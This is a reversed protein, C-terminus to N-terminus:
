ELTGILGEYNFSLSVKISYIRTAELDSILIAFAYNSRSDVSGYGCDSAVDDFDKMHPAIRVSVAEGNM